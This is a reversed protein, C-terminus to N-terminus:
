AAVTSASLTRPVYMSGELIVTASYARPHASVRGWRGVVARRVSIIIRNCM